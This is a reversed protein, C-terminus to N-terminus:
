RLPLEDNETLGSLIEVFSLDSTGPVVKVKVTKGDRLVAVSDGMELNQRPITLVQKAERIVINAELNLGYIQLPAGEEFVADVRLSQETKNLKPYIKSLKAKFTKGPLADMQILVSQGTQVRGLDAEDISLRAIVPGSGILALAENQHVFDGAKKYLEIVKGRASSTLNQDNLANSAMSFRNRANAAETQLANKQAQWQDLAAQADRKSTEAQLRVRDFEAQSIAGAKLLEEYRKRNTSDNSAKDRANLYRQQLQNLVPSADSINSQAMRYVFGSAESESMRNPGAIKFLAQGTILSDGEAIFVSELYGTVNPYVKYEESPYLNGSAYVVEALDRRQPHITESKKSCASLGLTLAIFATSSRYILSM